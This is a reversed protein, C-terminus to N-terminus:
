RKARRAKLDSQWETPDPLYAAVVRVNDGEADAAFLVHFPPGEHRGLIVYRPLYKDHPYAEVLEYGDVASLIATRSIFRGALRM